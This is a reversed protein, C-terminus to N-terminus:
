CWYKESPPNNETTTECSVWPRLATFINEVCIKMMGLFSKIEFVQKKFLIATLDSSMLYEGEARMSDFSTRRLLKLINATDKACRGVCGWQGSDDAGEIPGLSRSAEMPISSTYLKGRKPLYTFSISCDYECCRQHMLSTRGCDVSRM